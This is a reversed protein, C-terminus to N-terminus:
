GCSILVYPCEILLDSGCYYNIFHKIVYNQKALIGAGKNIYESFHFREESNRVIRM